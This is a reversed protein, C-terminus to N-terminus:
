PRSIVPRSKVRKPRCLRASNKAQLLYTQLTYNRTKPLPVSIQRSLYKAIEYDLIKAAKDGLTQEIAAYLSDLRYPIEDRTIDYHETLHQYLSDRGKEGWLETVAEDISKILLENFQAAKQSM